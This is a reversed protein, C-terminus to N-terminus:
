YDTSDVAISPLWSPIDSPSISPRDSPQHSPAETFCEREYYVAGIFSAPSYLFAATHFPYGVVSEGHRLILPHLDHSNWDDDKQVRGLSSRKEPRCVLAGQDLTLYFSRMGGNPPISTPEFTEWPIQFYGGLLDEEYITGTSILDWLSFDGRYDFTEPGLSTRNPDAYPGDKILAYVEYNVSNDRKGDLPVPIASFDVHFGLSTVVTGKDDNEDSTMPFVLGYSAITDNRFLEYERDTTIYSHCGYEDADIYRLSTPAFSRSPMATPKMSRSPKPTDAVTPSDSPALTISPFSTASPAPSPANTPCRGNTFYVSGIFKSPTYFYPLSPFPYSPSAEGIRLIPQENIADVDRGWFIYKEVCDNEAQVGGDVGCYVAQQEDHLDEYDEPFAILLAGAQRLTLYFSRVGEEGDASPPPLSVPQFQDYPIQVMRLEGGGNSLADFDTVAGVGIKEWQTLNGRHDWSSEQSAGGNGGTRREPDAYYGELTYVEYSIVSGDFGMQPTLKTPDVYFGLSSVTIEAGASSPPTSLTFIVGYGVRENSSSVRTVPPVSTLNHHCGGEAAVVPATTRLALALLLLPLCRRPAIMPLLMNHM